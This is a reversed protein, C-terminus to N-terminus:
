RNCGNPCRRRFRRRRPTIVLTYRSWETGLSPPLAVCRYLAASARLNGAGLWPSSLRPHRRVQRRGCERSDWCGRALAVTSPCTSLSLGVLKSFGSQCCRFQCWSQWPAAIATGSPLAICIGHGARRSGVSGTPCTAFRCSRPALLPSLVELPSDGLYGYSLLHNLDAGRYHSNNRFNGCIWLSARGLWVRRSVCTGFAFWEVWCLALTLLAADEKPHPNPPV